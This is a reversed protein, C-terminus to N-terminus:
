KAQYSLTCKRSPFPNLLTMYLTRINGSPEKWVAKGATLDYSDPQIDFEGNDKRRVNSLLEGRGIRTEIEIRNLVGM